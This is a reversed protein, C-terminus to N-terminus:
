SRELVILDQFAHIAGPVFARVQFRRGFIAEAGAQSVFTTGYRYEERTLHTYQEVFDFGAEALNAQALALREHPIGVLRTVAEDVLARQLAREGHLTLFLLGGTRTIRYLEDVYFDTTSRDIHTFVSISIVGDFTASGFPLPKAPETVMGEVWPLHGSVWNINAEDIDVGAYRGSFGKFYRAVRGVGVGFDLVAELTNLPKPSAASLAKLIDAGHQAFDRDRDLGTTHYMLDTPPFPATYDSARASQFATEVNFKLWNALPGAIGETAGPPPPGAHKEFLQRIRDPERRGPRAVYLSDDAMVEDSAILESELAYLARLVGSGEGGDDIEPAICGSAFLPGLLAGGESKHSTIEFTSRLISDIALSRSPRTLRAMKDSFSTKLRWRSPVLQLIDDLLTRFHGLGGQVTATGPRVHLWLLGTDSLVRSLRAFLAELDLAIDSSLNVFAADYLEEAPDTLAIFSEAAARNRALDFVTGNSHVALPALADAIQTADIATECFILHRRCQGVESFAQAAPHSEASGTVAANMAARLTPLTRWDVSASSMLDPDSRQPDPAGLFAEKARAIWNM